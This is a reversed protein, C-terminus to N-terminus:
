SRWLALVPPAGRCSGAKTHRESDGIVAIRCSGTWQGTDGTICTIALLDVIPTTRYALRWTLSPVSNPDTQGAAFNM